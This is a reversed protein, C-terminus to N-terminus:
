WVFPLLRYKVRTEYERYGSLGEELVQEENRIRKVLVAPVFLFPVIAMASGLVLPMSLFLLIVAMYMPHRVIGYLGTDVVRQDKQIEVTRSLYANERMVEVYLGYAIMFFGVGIGVGPLPLRTWGFRYDLGAIVFGAIFIISSLLIVKKQESEQERSNLRKELLQPAKCLLVAGMVPMPIFLLGILLWGNPYQWTGAPLFLLLTVLLMGSIM